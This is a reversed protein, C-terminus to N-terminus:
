GKLPLSKWQMPFEIGRVGAIKSSFLAPSCTGTTHVLHTGPVARCTDSCQDFEKGRLMLPVARLGWGGSKGYDLKEMM